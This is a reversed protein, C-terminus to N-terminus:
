SVGQVGVLANVLLSEPEGVQQTKEFRICVFTHCRPEPSIGQRKTEPRRAVWDNPENEVLDAIFVEGILIDVLDCRADVVDDVCTLTVM